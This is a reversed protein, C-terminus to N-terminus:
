AARSNGSVEKKKLCNLHVEKEKEWNRTKGSWREPHILKAKEYLKHRAILISQDEGRHRSSPTVFNIGSHLHEENYWRVFNKVWERAEEISCFPNTPFQPCYKTTRFLAESFPNDDSVSPRSFSPVVGLCQLTALLTAGKMPKGNDSHLILQHPQINEEDCIKFILESALESSQKDHVEFGVIKRSYIDMVLYLYFFMGLVNSKLYTIDWSFIERPARAVLEMPKQHRPARAHSRHSSQEADKLIRYMSSESALYIGKDALFPVIQSPSKDRLEPSNVTEIIKQKEKSSIKNKPTSRPGCRQDGAPNKKWREM